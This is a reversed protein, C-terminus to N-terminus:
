QVDMGFKFRREDLTSSHSLVAKSLDVVQDSSPTSWTQPLMQGINVRQNSQVPRTAELPPDPKPVGAHTSPTKSPNDSDTGSDKSNRTRGPM